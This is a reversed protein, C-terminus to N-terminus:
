FIVLEYRPPSCLRTSRLALFLKRPRLGNPCTWHVICLWYCYPVTMIWSGHLSNLPSINIVVLSCNKVKKGGQNHKLKAFLWLNAPCLLLMVLMTICEKAMQMICCQPVCCKKQLLLVLVQCTEFRNMERSCQLLAIPFYEVILYKVQM